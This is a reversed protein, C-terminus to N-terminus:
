YLIINDKIYSSVYSKIYQTDLNDNKSIAEVDNGVVVLLGWVIPTFICSWFNLNFDLLINYSIWGSFRDM